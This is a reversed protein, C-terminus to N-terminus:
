YRSVMAAGIKRGSVSIVPKKPCFKPQITLWTPDVTANQPRPRPENSRDAAAM